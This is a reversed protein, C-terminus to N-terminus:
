EQNTILDWSNIFKEGVDLSVYDVGQMGQESYDVDLGTLGEAMLTAQLAKLFNKDTYILGDEYINWHATDFYVRLEGYDREENIYLVDISLLQVNKQETTWSGDGATGILYEHQM